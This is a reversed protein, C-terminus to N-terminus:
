QIKLNETITKFFEPSWLQLKNLDSIFPTVDNKAQNFDIEEFRVKLMRILSDKTLDYDGEIYNSQVLRSKLHKLNVPVNMSLFYIYDYFDRGKIRNKWNRSLVADIKGAFLTPLDYVRVQYPYPLLRYKIETSAFKPPNTDIDFKVKIREDAHLISADQFEGPYFILFQQKTNGKLFASKINTNNLKVKEEIKFKLGLSEVENQVFSIYKNFNFDTNGVLLTFDLDESFRDLDYFIRLATGGYFAADNFFSSRSLGCLVIEQIVEKIANKKDEVTKPSYKMLMQDLIQM